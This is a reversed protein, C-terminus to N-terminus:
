IKINSLTKQKENTDDIDNTYTSTKYEKEYKKLNNLYNLNQNRTNISNMQEKLKDIKDKIVDNKIIKSKVTKIIITKRKKDVSNVKINKESIKKDNLIPMKNNTGSKNILRSTSPRRMLTNKDLYKLIQKTKIKDKKISDIKTNSLSNYKMHENIILAKQKKIPSCQKPEIIIQNKRNNKIKIVDKLDGSFFRNQSLINNGKEKSNAEITNRKLYNARSNSNTKISHRNEEKLNKYFHIKNM